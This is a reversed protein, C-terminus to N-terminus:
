KIQTWTGKKKQWMEFDFEPYQEKAAAYKVKSDDWIHGGKAEIFLVPAEVRVIMFDPCYTCNDGLRLKVPEYRLKDNPFRVKLMREMEQETQNMTRRKPASVAAGAAAIVQRPLDGGPPLDHKNLDIFDKSARPFMAGIAPNM